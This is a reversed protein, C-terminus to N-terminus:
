QKLLKDPQTFHFLFWHGTYPYQEKEDQSMNNLLLLQEIGDDKDEDGGAVVLSRTTCRTKGKKDKNGKTLYQNLEVEGTINLRRNLDKAAKDRCM